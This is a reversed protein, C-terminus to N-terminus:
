DGEFPLMIAAIVGGEPRAKLSLAAADGYLQALRERVNALGIGSGAAANTFGVGDDIVAIELRAGEVNDIRRAQVDIRAPGPKLEIGHKVANEVLSILM